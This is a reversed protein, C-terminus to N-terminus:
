THGMDEIAFCHMYSSNFHILDAGATSALFVGLTRIGNSGVGSWSGQFACPTSFGTANDQRHIVREETLTDTNAPPDPGDKRRIRVRKGAFDSTTSDVSLDCILRYMHNALFNATITLFPTALEATGSVDASAATTSAFGIRGRPRSDDTPRILRWTSGDWCRINGTDTERILQSIFPSGPRTGSTCIVCDFKSDITSMPTAIARTVDIREIKAIINGSATAAAANPSFTITRNGGSPASIDSITFVTQEKEVLLSTFLRCRDNVALDAADADAVIITSVTGLAVSQASALAIPRNIGLKTTTFSTTM